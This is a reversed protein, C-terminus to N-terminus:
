DRAISLLPQGARAAYAGLVGLGAPEPATLVVMVNDYNVDLNTAGGQGFIIRNFTFNSVGTQAGTLTTADITGRYSLSTAGTRTIELTYDHALNDNIAITPSGFKM